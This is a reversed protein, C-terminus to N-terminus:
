PADRTMAAHAEQREKGEGGAGVRWLRADHGTHDFRAPRDRRVRVRVDARIPGDVFVYSSRYYPRTTTVREFSKPVGIFVDCLGADMTKRVFGRLLPLWEYRLDAKM